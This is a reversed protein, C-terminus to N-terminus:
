LKLFKLNSISSTPNMKRIPKKVYWPCVNCTTHEEPPQPNQNENLVLQFNQLIGIHCNMMM